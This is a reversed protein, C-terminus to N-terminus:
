KLRIKGDNIARQTALLVDDYFYKRIDRSHPINNLRTPIGRWKDQILSAKRKKIDLISKEGSKVIKVKDQQLPSLLSEIDKFVEEKPRSGDIKNTINSYASSVAEANQKYIKLRSMVNEAEINRM